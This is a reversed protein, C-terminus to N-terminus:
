LDVEEKKIYPVLSDSLPKERKKGRSYLSISKIKFDDLNNELDGICSLLFWQHEQDYDDYHYDGEAVVIEADVVVDFAIEMGPLDRISIFQIEMDTLSIEGQRKVNQIDLDLSGPHDAIYEEVAKYFDNYFRDSAYDTFSRGAAM